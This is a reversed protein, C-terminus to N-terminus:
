SYTNNAPAVNKAKTRQTETPLTLTGRFSVMVIIHFETQPIGTGSVMSVGDMIKDTRNGRTMQTASVPADSERQPPAICPNSRLGSASPEVSPTDDPAANPATMAMANPIVIGESGKAPVIIIAITNANIESITIRVRAYLISKENDVLVIMRIPTIYEMNTELTKDRMIVNAGSLTFCMVKQVIPLRDPLLKSLASTSRAANAM